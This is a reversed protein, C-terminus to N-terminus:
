VTFTSNFPIIFPNFRRTKNKCFFVSFNNKRFNTKGNDTNYRLLDTTVGSIFQLPRAPQGTRQSLSWGPM